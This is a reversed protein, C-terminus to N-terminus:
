RGKEAVAGGEAEESWGGGLAKYLSILDTTVLADSEALRDQLDYLVRQADLVNQFDTLGQKYLDAALRV